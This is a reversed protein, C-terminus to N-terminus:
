DQCLAIVGCAFVGLFGILTTLFGAGFGIAAAGSWWSDQPILHFLGIWLVTMFGGFGLANRTIEKLMIMPKATCNSITM